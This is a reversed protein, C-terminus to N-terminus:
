PSRRASSAAAVKFLRMVEVTVVGVSDCLDCACGRVETGREERLMGEGECKPCPVLTPRDEDPESM